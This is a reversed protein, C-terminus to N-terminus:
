AMRHLAYGVTADTEVNMQMVHKGAEIAGQAVQAGVEPIGTAEVSIDLPECWAIAPNSTAVRGGDSLVSVARDPDDTEVVAATPVGASIFAELARDPVADVAVSPELGAMQELVVALGEGMQGAGVMGVRIKRGSKELERLRQHLM